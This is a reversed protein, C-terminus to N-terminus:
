PHHRIIRLRSPITRRCTRILRLQFTGKKATSFPFVENKRANGPLNHFEAGHPALLGSDNEAIFWAGTDSTIPLSVRQSRAM